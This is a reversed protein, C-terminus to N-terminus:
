PTSKKNIFNKFKQSNDKRRKMRLYNRNFSGKSGMNQKFDITKLILILLFSLV